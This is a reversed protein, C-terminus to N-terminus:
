CCLPTLCFGLMRRCKIRFPFDVGFTLVRLFSAMIIISQVLSTNSKRSKQELSIIFGTVLASSTSDQLQHMNSNISKVPITRSLAFCAFKRWISVLYKLLYHCEWHITDCNTHIRVSSCGTHQAIYTHM